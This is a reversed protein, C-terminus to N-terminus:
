VRKIGKVELKATNKIRKITKAIDMVVTKKM